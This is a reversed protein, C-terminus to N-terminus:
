TAPASRPRRRLVRSTVRRSVYPSGELYFRLPWDAAKTIGIRPATVMPGREKRFLEVTPNRAIFLPSNADCLTAADLAREIDMALCLKAPGSTLNHPENVQRNARMLEEGFLPEVARVLVAEPIGAPRCVANFCYYNGYIFYVYSRGHLGWMARNRPTEGSAAHCAPDDALYAETEVIFGGCPGQPTNRILWHGLLLPAVAKASPEYFSKPLPVFKM